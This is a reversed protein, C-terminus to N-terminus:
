PFMPTGHHPKRDVPDVPSVVVQHYDIFAMIESVPISSSGATPLPFVSIHAEHATYDTWTNLCFDQHEGGRRDIVAKVIQAVLKGQSILPVWGFKVFFQVRFRINICDKALRLLDVIGPAPQWALLPCRRRKEGPKVKIEELHQVAHGNGPGSLMDLGVVISRIDACERGSVFGYGQTWLQCVQLFCDVVPLYELTKFLQAQGNVRRCDIDLGTLQALVQVALFRFREVFATLVANLTQHADVKQLAHFAGDMGEQQSYATDM